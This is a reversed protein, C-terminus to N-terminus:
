RGGARANLASTITQFTEKHDLGAHRAAISLAHRITLPDLDPLRALAFAEANLVVNRTGEPASAVHRVAALLAAASYKDSVNIRPRPLDTAILRPPRLVDTLWQPWLAMARKVVLEPLWAIAYGDRGRTDVGAAIKSASTPPPPVGDALRYWLHAGGRRTKIKVTAPLSERERALWALGPEGDLDLVAVGSEIGTRIGILAAGHGAFLRAVRDPDITADLLGHKCAPVKDNRCPLVNFGDRALRLAQAVLTTNTSKLAESSLAKRDGSPTAAGAANEHKSM